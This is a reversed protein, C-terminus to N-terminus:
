VPTGGTPSGSSGIMNTTSTGTVPGVAMGIVSSLASGAGQLVAATQANKSVIVAVMALTLIGAVVTILTPGISNM